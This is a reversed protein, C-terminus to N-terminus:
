AQLIITKHLVVRATYKRAVGIGWDRRCAGFHDREFQTVNPGNGDDGCGATTLAQKLKNKNAQAGDGIGNM